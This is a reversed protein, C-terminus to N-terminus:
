YKRIDNTEKLEVVALDQDTEWFTRYAWELARYAGYAGGLCMTVVVVVAAIAAAENMRHLEEPTGGHRLFDRDGKNIQAELKAGRVRSRQLEKELAKRRQPPIRHLQRDVHKEAKKGFDIISKYMNSYKQDTTSFNASLHLPSLTQTFFPGAAHYQHLAVRSLAIPSYRGKLSFM